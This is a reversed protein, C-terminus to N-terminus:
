RSRDDSVMFRQGTADYGYVLGHAVQLAHFDAERLLSLPRWSRGADRSQILGLLPRKNPDYLKPTASTPTAAAL